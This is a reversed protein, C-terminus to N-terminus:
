DKWKDVSKLKSRLGPLPFGLSYAVKAQEMAKDYDGLDFYALGVNYNLNPDGGLKELGERALQLQGKAAERDGKKVLYVGYMTHVAPDDPTFRLAREFYCEVPWHAGRPKLTREKASLKMMALLARAHNPFARLTYDIDGGLHSNSNERQLSEVNSQFHAGEVLNKQYATATRYDYPGYQGPPALEGCVEYAHAIAALCSLWLALCVRRLAM